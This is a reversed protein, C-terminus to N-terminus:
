QTLDRWLLGVRAPNKDVGSVQGSVVVVEASGPLLIFAADEYGLLGIRRYSENRKAEDFESRTATLLDDIEANSYGFIGPWSSHSEYWGPLIGSADPLLFPSGMLKMPARQGAAPDFYEDWSIDVLDVHFKQNLAEFSGKFQTAFVDFPAHGLPYPLSFRVGREWVQGGWAARCHEEAAAEDATYTPITADYGGFQPALAMTLTLGKGGLLAEDYADPDFTYAFCKRVNVDTFFDPPIGAGDLQGSGIYPNGEPEMAYNFLAGWIDTLGWPLTPDTSPDLVTVGPQDALEDESMAEGSFDIQDAAGAMLAAIREGEDQVVAYTIREYYPQAGWYGDYREAVVHVGPEWEVLRYAGTGSAATQLLVDTDYAEIWDRWTAETGDWMGQEMAWRSDVISTLHTNLKPLLVPDAKVVRVLATMEDLCEISRDISRWFAAYEEDPTGEGFAWAGVGGPGLVAETLLGPDYILARLYSYRVDACTFPNGSHFTVGERLHFTYTLGDASAEYSTALQPELQLSTGAYGYLTEYLNQAVEASPSANAIFPNLTGIDNARQYVYTQAASWGLTLALILTILQKKM